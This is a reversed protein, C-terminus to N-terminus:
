VTSGPCSTAIVLVAFPSTVESPCRLASNPPALEVGFAGVGFCGSGFGSAGLGSAGFTSVGCVSVGCTAAGFGSAGFVSAGFGSAIVLYGVFLCAVVATLINEQARRSM